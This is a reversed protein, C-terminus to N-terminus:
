TFHDSHLSVPSGHLHGKFYQLKRLEPNRLQSVFSSCASCRDPSRQKMWHSKSAPPISVFMLSKSGAPGRILVGRTGSGPTGHRRLMGSVTAPLSVPKCTSYFFFIESEECTNVIKAIPMFHQCLCPKRSSSLELARQLVPQSIHSVGQPRPAFARILTIPM